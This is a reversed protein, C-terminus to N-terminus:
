ILDGPMSGLWIRMGNSFNLLIVGATMLHQGASSRYRYVHKACCSPRSICDFHSHRRLHPTALSTERQTALTRYCHYYPLVLLLLALMAVVDLRWNLWRARCVPDFRPDTGTIGAGFDM